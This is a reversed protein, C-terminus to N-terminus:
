REAIILSRRPLSRTITTVAAHCGHSYSTEYLRLLSSWALMRVEWVVRTAKLRPAADPRQRSSSNCDRLTSSRRCLPQGANLSFPGEGVATVRNTSM